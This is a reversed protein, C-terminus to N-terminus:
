SYAKELKEREAQYWARADFAEDDLEAETKRLAAERRVAALEEAFEQAREESSLGAIREKELQVVIEARQADSLEEDLIAGAPVTEGLAAITSVAWGARSKKWYGLGRFDPVIEGSLALRENKRLGAFASSLREFDADAIMDEGAQPTFYVANEEFLKDQATEFAKHLPAFEDELVPIQAAEARAHANYVEAKSAQGASAAAAALTLFNSRSANVAALRSRIESLQIFEDLGQLKPGIVAFTKVPDALAESFGLVIELGDITGHLVTKM